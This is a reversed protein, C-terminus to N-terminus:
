ADFFVTEQDGQMHIDFRYVVGDAGEQRRAILTDRRTADVLALAPDGGNAAAEDSFYIRTYAHNLLGRMFLVVTIHPAQGDGTAGPKITHFEFYHEALTGTGVRGFGRFSTNSGRPDGPHAYRGQSDAQWLELVADRITEGNGDFVQGRITIREGDGKGEDLDNGALQKYDYGYQEPTLGYAFYPGVTQSPTQKPTM